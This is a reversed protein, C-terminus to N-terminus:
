KEILENIWNFVNNISYNENVEFLNAPYAEIGLDLIKQLNERRVLEQESLKTM